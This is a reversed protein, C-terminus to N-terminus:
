QPSIKAKSLLNKLPEKFKITGEQRVRLEVERGVLVPTLGWPVQKPKGIKLLFQRLM